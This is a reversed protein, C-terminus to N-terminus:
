FLCHPQPHVKGSFIFIFPGKKREGENYWIPELNNVPIAVRDWFNEDSVVIATWNELKGSPVRPEMILKSVFAM